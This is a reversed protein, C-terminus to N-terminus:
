TVAAAAALTIRGVFLYHQANNAATGSSGNVVIFISRRVRSKVCV